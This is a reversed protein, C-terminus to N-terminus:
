EEVTSLPFEMRGQKHIQLLLGWRSVVRLQVFRFDLRLGFYGQARRRTLDNPHVVHDLQELLETTGAVLRM